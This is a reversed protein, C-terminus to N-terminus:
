RNRKRRNVDDELNGQDDVGDIQVRERRVTDSVQEQETEATKHLHVEEAVHARKAAVAEEGMVPVDIDREQFADPGVDTAAQGEVPVREVHVEERKVPVDVTKQEAVVDKHLHVRGIEEQRKGAVLEEERVPVAIDDRDTVNDRRTNRESVIDQDTTYAPGTAQTATARRSTITDADSDTTTAAGSMADTPPYAYRDDKLDDKYANIFIGDSDTRTVANTPIYVDRHFILGKQVLLYGGQADYQQLSGIKDGAADYVPTGEVFRQRNNVDGHAIPDNYM